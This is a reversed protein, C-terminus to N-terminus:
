RLSYHEGNGVESYREQGATGAPLAVPLGDARRLLTATGGPLLPYDNPDQEHM